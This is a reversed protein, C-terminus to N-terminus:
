IEGIDILGKPIEPSEEGVGGLMEALVTEISDVLALMAKQVRKNTQLSFAQNPGVFFGEDTQLFYCAEITSDGGEYSVSSVSLTRLKDGTIDVM